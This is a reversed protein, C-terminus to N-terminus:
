LSEGNQCREPLKEASTKWRVAVIDSDCSSDDDDDVVIVVAVVVVVVVAVVVVLVVIVNVVIVVIVAVGVVNHLDCFCCCFGCGIYSGIM